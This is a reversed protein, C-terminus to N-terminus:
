FHVESRLTSIFANPQSKLFLLSFFKFIGTFFVANERTILKVKALKKRYIALNNECSRVTYWRKISIFRKWARGARYLSTNMSDCLICDIKNLSKWSYLWLLLNQVTTQDLLNHNKEKWFLTQFADVCKELDWSCHVRHVTSRNELKLLHGSLNPSPITPWVRLFSSLRSLGKAM